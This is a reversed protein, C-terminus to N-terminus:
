RSNQLIKAILDPWLVVPCVVVCLTVIQISSCLDSVLDDSLITVQHIPHSNTHRGYVLSPDSLVRHRAQLSLSRSSARSRSDPSRRRPVIASQNSSPHRYTSQGDGYSDDTFVSDEDEYM